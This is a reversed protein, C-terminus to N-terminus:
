LKNIAKILKSFTKKDEKFSTWTGNIKRITYFEGAVLMECFEGEELPFTKKLKRFEAFTKYYEGNLGIWGDPHYKFKYVM